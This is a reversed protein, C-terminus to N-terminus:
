VKSLINKLDVTFEIKFKPLYLEIESYSRPANALIEWSFNTQLNSLGDIENPLIIIMVIDTNQM